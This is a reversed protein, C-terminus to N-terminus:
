FKIGTELLLPCHDSIPRALVRQACDRFLDLGDTSVLFQDLRSVPFQQMNSWTFKAGQLPLDCLDQARIWDNFDRM